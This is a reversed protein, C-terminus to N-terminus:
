LNHWTRTNNTTIIIVAKRPNVAVLDTWCFWILLGIQAQSLWCSYLPFTVTSWLFWSKSYMYIGAPYSSTSGKLRRSRSTDASYTHMAAALSARYSAPGPSTPQRLVHGILLNSVESTRSWWFVGCCNKQSFKRKNVYLYFCYFCFILLIKRDCHTTLKM